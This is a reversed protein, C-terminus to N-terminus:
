RANIAQGDPGASPIEEGALWARIIANVTQPAEQQVWHSVGPLYRLTLDRVHKETGFTTEKALAVDAEGWIMLTPTEIEPIGLQLQREMGGGRAIARYYNLMATLAGPQAANDRYVDIVEPPFMAKNCASSLIADGVRKAHGLGLLFEPLFPIQFFRIYWSKRRQDASSAVTEAFRAPHPVNCIILKELPRIKRIAFFWAVIAGWDHGLLIFSDCGSADMLAGADEMLNEIAYAQMGKPKSSRGYGRQNPAWATYGLKALLPLQFRWSFSHEPFGHLCLALTKGNGCMDVEFSLGGAEVFETRIEHESM